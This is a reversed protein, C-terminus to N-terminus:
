LVPAIINLLASLVQFFALYAKLAIDVKGRQETTGFM